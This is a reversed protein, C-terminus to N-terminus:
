SFWRVDPGRPEQMMVARRSLWGDLITGHAFNKAIAQPM